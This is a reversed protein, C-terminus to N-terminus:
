RILNVTTKNHLWTTVVRLPNDANQTNMLFRHDKLFTRVLTIVELAVMGFISEKLFYYVGPSM